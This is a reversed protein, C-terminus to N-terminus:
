NLMLKPTSPVPEFETENVVGFVTTIYRHVVTDVGNIPDFVRRFFLVGDDGVPQMSHASVHITEYDTSVRFTQFPAMVVARIQELEEATFKM